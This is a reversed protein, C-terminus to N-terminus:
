RACRRSRRGPRPDLDVSLYGLTEAPLAESPQAGGGSLKIAAFTAGGAVAVAALAAIGILLPKKSSKKEPAVPQGGGPSLYEPQGDGSGPPLHHDSM